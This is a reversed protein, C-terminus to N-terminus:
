YRPYPPPGSDATVGVGVRVTPGPDYPMRITTDRGNYRYTVDYGRIVDQYSDVTRCRQVVEDHSTTTTNANGSLVGGNPDVRDGVVAGAVAGVGTAVANGRGSGIQHGVVGGAIGGIIAGLPSGAPRSEQVTVNENVCEQRPTNVREYVPVSAVVPALESYDAARAWPTAIAAAAAAAALVSLETVRRSNMQRTLRKMKMRVETKM